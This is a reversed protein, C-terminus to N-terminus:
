GLTVEIVTEEGTLVFGDGSENLVKRRFTLTSNVDDVVMDYTVWDVGSDSLVTSPSGMMPDNLYVIAM